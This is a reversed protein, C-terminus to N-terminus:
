NLKDQQSEVNFKKLLILMEELDKKNMKINKPTDLIEKITTQFEKLEPNKNRRISSYLNRLQNTELGLFEIAELDNNEKFREILKETYETNNICEKQSKQIKERKIDKSIKSFFREISKFYSTL